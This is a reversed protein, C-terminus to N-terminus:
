CKKPTARMPGKKRDAGPDWFEVGEELREEDGADNPGLDRFRMYNSEFSVECDGGHDAGRPANAIWDAVRTVEPPFWCVLGIPYDLNLRRCGALLIARHRRM